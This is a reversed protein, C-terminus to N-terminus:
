FGYFSGFPNDEQLITLFTQNSTLGKASERPYLRSIERIVNQNHAINFSLDVVWNKNKVATYAVSAEWGDNDMTGVNMSLGGFGNYNAIQINNYMLDTTRNKYLEGGFRLRYDFLEVDLGLNSQTVTEWKLDSLELNSSYVGNEGLYSFGYSNYINYFTYDRRPANGSKGYSGRIKIDNVFKVEKLFAEEGVRWAGSIAPFYGYRNSTGFKSNGDARISAAFVYKNKFAYNIQALAGISRSQTVTSYASGGLNTRSYISPDQLYSSATNSSTLGQITYRGDFTQFSLNGTIAHNEGINPTYLLNTKSQLSFNDLDSDTARNVINEIFPRGTANQPLFTKTKNNNISFSMNSEFRLVKPILHYSLNFRTSLNDGLQKNVANSLMALPNYTGSYTGQATSIPVFLNGSQNGFEDYEYVSQNPMKTYAVDRVRSNYLNDNDVHTYSVDSQFRIKESVIYDLNIRASLRDLSTGKTTGEQTFYGISTLYRAKEGGGQIQVNHDQMTGTQSIASIWDTNNSFNYYTYTDNPDYQFQKANDTISFIRGANYFSESLLTTYQDGNLLPIAEPQKALSGKFNYSITPPGVMGRKTNIILVGNAARSGWVATAAADKLVSIDKIDSPAINLLQGYANDDSTAFNFDDPITIEYPMGDVVILPDSAGNLSSTGRIRIQMGAGPDGSITSIDVGALRGQLAQDISSSQMEEMEKASISSIAGTSRARSIPMGSGDDVPVEARVVVENLINLSSEIQININTREGIVIPTSTKYGIYSVVIRLSKDNVRVVYNGELDTNSGSLIRNDKDVVTVSAGIVPLKDDKDTVKGTVTITANQGYIYGINVLLLILLSIYKFLKKTIM